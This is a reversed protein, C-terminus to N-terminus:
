DQEKWYLDLLGRINYTALIIRNVDEIQLQYTELQAKLWNLDRNIYALNTKQITGDIIIPIPMYTPTSSINMDGAQLPRAKETPIFSIEGTQELTARAIDSIDTYGAVRMQALLQEVEVREKRLSKVMIKGEDILITQTPTIWRKFLNTLEMYSYIVYLAVFIAAYGFATGLKSSTIPEAVVTGLVMVMMLDIGSMETAAKKGMARMSLYAVVFVLVPKLFFEFSFSM